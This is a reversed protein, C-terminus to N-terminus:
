KHWGQSTPVTGNSNDTLDYTIETDTTQSLSYKLILILIIEVIDHASCILVKYLPVLLLTVSKSIWQVWTQLTWFMLKIDSNLATLRDPLM